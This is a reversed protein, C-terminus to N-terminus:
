KKRCLTELAREECVEQTNYPNAALCQKVYQRAAEPDPCKAFKDDQGWAAGASWWLILVGLTRMAGSRM